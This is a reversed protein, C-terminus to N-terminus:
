RSLMKSIIALASTLRENEDLIKDYHEDFVDRQHTFQAVNGDKLYLSRIKYWDELILEEQPPILGAYKEKALIEKASKWDTRFLENVAM